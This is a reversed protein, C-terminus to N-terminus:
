DQFLGKQGQTQLTKMLRELSITGLILGGGNEKM